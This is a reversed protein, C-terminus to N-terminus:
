RDTERGLLADLSVDLARALAHAHALTPIHESREWASVSTWHGVGARDALQPQTLGARNRAVRLRTGFGEVGSIETM